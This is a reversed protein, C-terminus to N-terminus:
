ERSKTKNREHGITPCARNVQEAIIRLATDRYSRHIEITQPLNSFHRTVHSTHRTVHSTHRTIHSTHCGVLVAGELAGEVGEGGAGLDGVEGEEDVLEVAFVNAGNKPCGGHDVDVAWRAGIHQNKAGQMCFM